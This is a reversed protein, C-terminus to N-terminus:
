TRIISVPTQFSGWDGTGLGFESESYPDPIFITRLHVLFHVHSHTSFPLKKFFPDQGVNQMKVKMKGENEHRMETTKNFEVGVDLGKCHTLSWWM